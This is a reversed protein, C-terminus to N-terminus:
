VQHHPLVLQLQPLLCILQRAAGGIVTSILLCTAVPWLLRHFDFDNCNAVALKGIFQRINFGFMGTPGHMRDIHLQAAHAGNGFIRVQQRINEPIAHAPGFDDQNNAIHARAM